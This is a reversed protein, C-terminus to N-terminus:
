KEPNAEKAKQFGELMPKIRSEEYKM